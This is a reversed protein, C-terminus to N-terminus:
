DYSHANNREHDSGELYIGHHHHKGWHENRPVKAKPGSTSQTQAWPFSYDVEHDALAAGAFTFSGALALLLVPRIRM